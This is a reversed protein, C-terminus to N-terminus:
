KSWDEIALGSIQGFDAFNATVLIASRSLAIAAIRLDNKRIHRYRPRLAAFQDAALSDYSLIPLKRLLNVSSELKSYAAILEAPHRAQKIKNYRGIFVEQITVITVTVSDTPRALAMAMVGSHHQAMLSVTDTDLVWTSM